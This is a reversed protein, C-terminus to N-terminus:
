LRPTAADPSRSAHRGVSRSSIKRRSDSPKMRERLRENHAQILMLLNNFITRSAALWNASPKWKKRIGSNRKLRKHPSIDYLVGQMLLGHNETKQLLVAEDRFWL